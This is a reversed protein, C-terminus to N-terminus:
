RGSVKPKKILRVGPLNLADKLSSAQRNLGAQDFSVLAILDPRVNLIHTLFEAKSTVEAGYTYSVTAGEVKQATTIVTPTSATVEAAMNLNNAKEVGAAETSVAKSALQAAEAAAKAAAKANGDAIAQREREKAAEEERRLADAKARAEAEAKAAAARQEAAAREQAERAKREAERRIREQEETYGAIKGDMVKRAQTLTEIVPKFFGDIRRGAELIPAKLDERVKDLEKAKANIENRDNAANQLTDPSDIVYEGVMVLYANAQRSHTDGPLTARAEIVQPMSMDNPM